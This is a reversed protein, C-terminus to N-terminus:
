IDLLEKMTLSINSILDTANVTYMAKSLKDGIYGHIYAGSVTAELIDMGQGIFSTIMGLLCDGMGGTAMCSNGTPNIYTKKGDTIVTQYGKLLVVLNYKQAFEKAVDVRHERIYGISDGTLRAMEGLHPTIVFRNKWELFKYCRDKMVNLGDADLVIPCNSNEVIKLLKDFTQSNDGMGPGFGIADSSNLLKNLREEEFNLTMAETLRISVKEQVDESSILTVLGSGSKVASETAIFSAGYFGKSGAVISVKGFDSKFGHKDRRRINNKVFTKDTIFEEDHYKRTIFDPVGIKEVVVDGILASTDYNLFGRKYFEFSITKNARICTGLVNGNDSDIGSPIDISYTNKSNDNVIDIVEKFIGTIDHKLGTGFIADVVVDSKSVRDKFITLNKNKIINQKEVKIIKDVENEDGYNKESLDNKNINIINIGMNLLVNYNIKSCESLKELNGVLFVNVEKGYTNLHRAIGLGDGGNNGVGCVVTYSNYMDIDMNKMASIVANEMLVIMPIGVEEVCATDVNRSLKSTGILM